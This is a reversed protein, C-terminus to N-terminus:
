VHPPKEFTRKWFTHLYRSHLSTILVGTIISHLVSIGSVPAIHPPKLPDHHRPRLLWRPHLSTRLLAPIYPRPFRSIGSFFRQSVVDNPVVEVHSFAPSSGRRSYFRRPLPPPTCQDGSFGGRGEVSVPFLINDMRPKKVRKSDFGPAHLMKSRTTRKFNAECSRNMFTDEKDADKEPFFKTATKVHPQLKYTTCKPMLVWAHFDSTLLHNMTTTILIDTAALRRITTFHRLMSTAESVACWASNLYKETMLVPCEPVLAYALRNQQMEVGTRRTCSSMPYFYMKSDTQPLVAKSVFHFHKKEGKVFESASNIQVDNHPLAMKKVRIRGEEGCKNRMLRPDGSLRNVNIPDGSDNRQGDTIVPDCCASQFEQNSREDPCSSQGVESLREWTCRREGCDNTLIHLQSPLGLFIRRQWGHKPHGAVNLLKGAGSVHPCPLSPLASPNSVQRNAAKEYELSDVRLGTATKHVVQGSESPEGHGSKRRSLRPLHDSRAEIIVGSMSDELIPLPALGLLNITARAIAGKKAPSSLVM